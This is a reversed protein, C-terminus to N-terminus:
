EKIIDVTFIYIDVIGTKWADAPLGAKGACLNNMFEELNWGTEVAVQPLFVGSFDGKQVLVGHIGLEIEAANKIQKMPSLVSIEIKIAPLEKKTLPDFRPDSFAAEKAMRILTKYLPERSVMQGICGRLEGNLKHLTVFAGSKQLLSKEPVSTNKEKGGALYDQLTTRVLALMNKKEQETFNM